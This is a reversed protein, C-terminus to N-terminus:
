KVAKSNYNVSYETLLALYIITVILSEFCCVLCVGILLVISRTNMMGDIIKMMMVTANTMRLAYIQMTM